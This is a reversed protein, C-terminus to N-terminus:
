KKTDSGDDSTILVVDLSMTGRSLALTKGDPSWRYDLIHESTFTTVAKPPSGDLPFRWLNTAGDRFVLDEVAQGGPAWSTGFGVGPTYTYPFRRVPGQGDIPVVAMGSGQPETYIGVAFREDASVNRLDFRRPLRASDAFVPERAGGALPVRFAVPQEGQLVKFYVHTGCPQVYGRYIEGGTEITHANGGDLDMARVMVKSAGVARSTFIIGKGGPLLRPQNEVAPDNTLQKPNSGDSNAIWIDWSDTTASYLIRGDTTWDIGTAGERGNSSNTIPRARTSDGEPAVWLSARVQERVAVLTRGGATAAVNAYSADDPTIRRATGDPYSVAWLQSNQNWRGGYREVADFVLASGDSLWTLPGGSDFRADGLVQEKGSAVNVLVIRSRQQPM